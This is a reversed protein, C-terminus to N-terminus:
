IDILYTKWTNLIRKFAVVRDIDEGVDDDDVEPDVHGRGEDEHEAKAACPQEGIASITCVPIENFLGNVIPGPFCPKSFTGGFVFFSNNLNYRFSASKIWIVM